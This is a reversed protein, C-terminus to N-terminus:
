LREWENNGRFKLKKEQKEKAKPGTDKIFFCIVPGVISIVAFCYMAQQLEMHKMLVSLIMPTFFSVFSGLGFMMAYAMSAIEPTAGDIETSMTQMLPSFMSSFVGYTILTVILFVTGLSNFLMLLAIFGVINGVICVPKRRGVAASVVGAIFGGAMNAVSIFGAYASATQASYGRVLELYTPMYTLMCSQAFMLVCVYLAMLWVDRRKVVAAFAGGKDKKKVHEPQYEKNDKGVCMWILLFIFELAAMALFVNQWGGLATLLPIAANYAAFTGCAVGIQIFSFLLPRERPPLWMTGSSVCAVSNLGVGLGLLARGALIVPFSGSLGAMLNGTIVAAFAIVIAHKSGVRVIVLDSGLLMMVGMTLLVATVIIGATGIDTKLSQSITTLMPVAISYSMYMVVTNIVLLAMILFRYGSFTEIKKM